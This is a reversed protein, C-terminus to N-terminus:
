WSAVLSPMLQRLPERRYLQLALGGTARELRKLAAPAVQPRDGADFFAVQSYTLPNPDTPRRDSSFPIPSTEHAAYVLEAGGGELTDKVVGLASEGDGDPPDFHAALMLRRRSLEHEHSAHTFSAEFAEIGRERLLNIVLYYPNLTMALFRRHSPYRVVLLRDAQPEGYLSREHRGAWRVKGGALLMAPTVLLGYWRYSEFRKEEARILNVVDVPAPLDQWALRALAPLDLRRLVDADGAGGM